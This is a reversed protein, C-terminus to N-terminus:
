KGRWRDACGNPEFVRRSGAVEPERAANDIVTEGEALVAAMMLNETGTVTVKDLM